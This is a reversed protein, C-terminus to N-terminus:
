VGSGVEVVELLDTLHQFDAGNRTALRASHTHATAAILLDISRSRPQLGAKVTLAAIHAFSRAIALDVPIPRFVSLVDALRALRVARQEDDAARLVGFELEAVTVVSVASSGEAVFGTPDIIVSTDLVTLM